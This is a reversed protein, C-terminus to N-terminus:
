RMEVQLRSELSSFSAERLDGTTESMRRREAVVNNRSPQIRDINQINHASKPTTSGQNQMHRRDDSKLQEEIQMMVRSSPRDPTMQGTMVM